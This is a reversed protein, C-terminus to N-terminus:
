GYRGHPPMGLMSGPAPGRSIRRGLVVPFTVLSWLALVFCVSRGRRALVWGQARTLRHWWPRRSSPSCARGLWGLKRHGVWTAIITPLEITFSCDLCVSRACAVVGGVVLTARGGKAIILAASAAVFRARHIVRLRPSSQPRKERGQGLTALAEACSKRQASWYKPPMPKQANHVQRWCRVVTRRRWGAAAADRSLGHEQLLQLQLM